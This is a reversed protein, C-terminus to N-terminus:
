KAAAPTAIPQGNSDVPQVPYNIRARQLGVTVVWEQQWTKIWGKKDAAKEEGSAPLLVRMGDDLLRGPTIDRRVVVNDKGLVLLYRRDQDALVATDPVVVAEYRDSVPIRVRVRSGPILQADANKTEGRLEITGTASSVKNQAFDLVGERPFGEDTDVGFRFPIKEERISSAREGDREQRRSKQYRQLAREDVNFYVYIPDITVITTLLTESGGANVLNGETLAARGIRGSIPATIRSYELDLKNREVEQMTAATKAAYSLADAETKEFEVKSVAAKALLERNRIVDKDAALRQAESVKAQALAQEVAAQFPRPDLEFLLQGQKVMDGDRFHIKQIHGRVRARVEVEQSAQLWGTYDDEDTLARALPHAVTVRPAAREVPTSDGRDCGATSLGLLLTLWCCSAWTRLLM